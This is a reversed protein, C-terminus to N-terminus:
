LSNRNSNKMWDDIACALLHDKETVTNGADHTTLLLEVRSYDISIKPHHNHTQAMKAVHNVFELAREFGSFEFRGVIAFEQSEWHHSLQEVAGM